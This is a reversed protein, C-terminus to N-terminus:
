LPNIRCDRCMKWLTENWSLGAGDSAPIVLRLTIRRQALRTEIQAALQDIGEGTLASVLIPRRGATRRAGLNRLRARMEDDLRDIKNWVELIASEQAIGLQGLEASIKAARHAADRLACDSSQAVRAEGFEGLTESASARVQPFLGAAGGRHFSSFPWDRVRTVLGHKVVFADIHFPHRERARRTAERLAEMQDTLLSSRRDLLNATFFWCGGPVFARRYNPM